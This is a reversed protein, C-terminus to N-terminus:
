VERSGARAQACQTLPRLVRVSRSVGDSTVEHSGLCCCFHIVEARPLEAHEPHNLRHWHDHAPTTAARKAAEMAVAHALTELAREERDVHMVLGRVGKALISARAERTGASAVRDALAALYKAAWAADQALLTRLEADAAGACVARLRRHRLLFALQM